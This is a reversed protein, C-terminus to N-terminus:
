SFLIGRVKDQLEEKKAAFVSEFTCNEEIGGYKLLFGSGISVATKSVALRAGNTLAANLGAEFGAPLRKLDKESFCIEGSEGAHAALCAMAEVTKFYAGDPMASAEALAKEIVGSILEQKAALLQKRESLEAASETRKLSDSIRQDAARRVKERAKEAEGQATSMIASVKRDAEKMVVGVADASEKRIDEIIKELGTM